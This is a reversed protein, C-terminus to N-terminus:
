NNFDSPTGGFKNVNRWSGYNNPNSTIYGPGRYGSITDLIDSTNRNKELQSLKADLDTLAQAYKDPLRSRYRNYRETIFQNALGPIQAALEGTAVRRNGYGAQGLNALQEQEFQYQRLDTPYYQSASQNIAQNEAASQGALRDIRGKRQMEIDNITPAMELTRRGRRSSAAQGYAGFAGAQGGSAVKANAIDGQYAEQIGASAAREAVSPAYSEQLADAKAAALYPDRELVPPRGPRRSKRSESKFKNIQQQSQILDGGALLTNIGAVVAQGTKTKAISELNDLVAEKNNVITKKFEDYFFALEGPDLKKAEDESLGKYKAIAAEDIDAYNTLLFDKEDKSLSKFNAKAKDYISFWKSIENTKLM